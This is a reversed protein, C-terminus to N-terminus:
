ATTENEAPTPEQSQPSYLHWLTFPTLEGNRISTYMNKVKDLTPAAIFIVQNRTHTVVRALAGEFEYLGELRFGDNHSETYTVASILRQEPMARSLQPNFLEWDLHVYPIGNTKDVRFEGLKDSLGTVSPQIAAIGEDSLYVRLAM